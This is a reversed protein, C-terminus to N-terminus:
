VIEVLELEFTLDKGALKHNADLTVHEETIKKVEAPIQAGNQLPLQLMMGVELQFEPPFLNRDLELVLDERREGYAETSPIKITKKESVEMGNVGDDFGKIVAGSGIEFELPERQLSSDFVDGNDLSGTYHVKVKDGVKAKTM